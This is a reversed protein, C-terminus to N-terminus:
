LKEPLKEDRTILKYYNINLLECYKHILAIIYACRKKYKPEELSHKKSRPKEPYVSYGEQICLKQKRNKNFNGSLIAFHYKQLLINNINNYKKIPIDEGLEEIYIYDDTLISIYKNVGQKALLAVLEPNYLVWLAMLLPTMHEKESIGNVDAGQHLLEQIREKIIPIDKRKHERTDYIYSILEETAEEPTM